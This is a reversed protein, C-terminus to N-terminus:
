GDMRVLQRIRSSSTSWRYGIFDFLHASASKGNLCTSMSDDVGRVRSPLESKRRQARLIERGEVYRRIYNLYKDSYVGCLWNWPYDVVCKHMAPM